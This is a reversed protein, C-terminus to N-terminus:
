GSKSPMTVALTVGLETARMQTTLEDAKTACAMLEARLRAGMDAVEEADESLIGRKSAVTGLWDPPYVMRAIQPGQPTNVMAAQYTYVPLLTVMEGARAPDTTQGLYTSAGIKALVWRADPKNSIKINVM